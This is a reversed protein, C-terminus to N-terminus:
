VSVTDRSRGGLGVAHPAGALPQVDNNPEIPALAVREGSDREGSAPEPEGSDREGSDREGPPPLYLDSKPDSSPDDGGGSERRYSLSRLLRPPNSCPCPRARPVPRDVVLEVIDYPYSSSSSSTMRTLHRGRGCACPRSDDFEREPDLM